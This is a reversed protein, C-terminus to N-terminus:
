RGEGPEERHASSGEGRRAPVPPPAMGVHHVIGTAGLAAVESLATHIPRRRATRKALPASAAAYLAASPWRESEAQALVRARVTHDHRLRHHAFTFAAVAVVRGRSEAVSVGHNRGADAGDRGVTAHALPLALEPIEARAALIRLLDGGTRRPRAYVEVTHPADLGIGLFRVPGAGALVRWAQPALAAVLMRSQAPDPDVEVYLKHATTHATHRSGLWAGFRPRGARQHRRLLEATGPELGASGFLRAIRDVADVATRRDAEPALVDVTTRVEDTASTVAFEVPYRTPTLCSSEWALDGAVSGRLGALSVDLERRARAAHAPVVAAVRDILEAVLSEGTAPIARITSEM